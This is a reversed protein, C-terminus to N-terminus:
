HHRAVPCPATPVFYFVLHETQVGPFGKESLPHHLVAATQGTLYVAANAVPLLHVLDWEGRKVSGEFSVEAKCHCIFDQVPRDM